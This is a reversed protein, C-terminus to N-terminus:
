SISYITVRAAGNHTVALYNMDNSVVAFQIPDPPKVEAQKTFGSEDERYISVGHLGQNVILTQGDSAVIFDRVPISVEHLPSFKKGDYAFAMLYGMGGILLKKGDDIFEAQSAKREKEAIKSAKGFEIPTFRHATFTGYNDGYVILSESPHGAFCLAQKGRPKTKDLPKLTNGERAFLQMANSKFGIIAGSPKHLMPVNYSPGFVLTRLIDADFGEYAARDLFRFGHWPQSLFEDALANSIPLNFASKLAAGLEVRTTITPKEVSVSYAAKKDGTIVANTRNSYWLWQLPPDLSVDITGLLQIKMESKKGGNGLYKAPDVNCRHCLERFVAKREAGESHFKLFFPRHNWDFAEQSVGHLYFLLAAFHVAAEGDRELAGKFLADVVAPPHFEEAEDIAQSLGGWLNDSELSKILLREREKPDVEDAAYNMATQRIQPDRHKLADVVVKRATPSDIHALAEIDRWDRPSHDILIKEATKLDPENLQKLADLDYGEGDHWKEYTITMSALFRKLPDSIAEVSGSLRSAAFLAPPMQASAERRERAREEDREHIEKMRKIHAETPNPPGVLPAFKMPKFKAAAVSFSEDPVYYEYIMPDRELLERYLVDKPPHDQTTRFPAKFIFAIKGANEDRGIEVEIIEHGAALEADVLARLPAPLRPLHEAIKDALLM